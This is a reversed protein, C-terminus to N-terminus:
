ILDGNGTPLYVGQVRKQPRLYTQAVRQIDQPNVKSLRPLYNEFWTYSDLIETFGLWFAQNTIRESSRFLM